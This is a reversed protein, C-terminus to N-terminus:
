GLYALARKCVWRATRPAYKERDLEPRQHYWGLLSLGRM